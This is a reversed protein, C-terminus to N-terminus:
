DGDLRLRDVLGGGGILEDSNIRIHVMEGTRHGAPMTTLGNCLTSVIRACTPNHGVIAVCKSGRVDLLVDLADSLSREAGLRDDFARELDLKSWIPNATEEARAYPSSLVISPRPERDHLLDALWQAQKHGKKKLVRDRDLGSHSDEEAKGHRIVYIDMLGNGRLKWHEDIYWRQTWEM